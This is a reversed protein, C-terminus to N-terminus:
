ICSFTKGYIIADMADFFVKENTFCTRFTLIRLCTSAYVSTASNDFDITIKGFGFQQQVLAGTTFTLFSGIREPSASRIYEEFYERVLIEVPNLDVPFDLIGLVQEPSVLKSEVFLEHFLGSHSQMADRFSLIELGSAFQDLLVKGRLIIDQM